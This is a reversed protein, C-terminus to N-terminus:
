SNLLLFLLKCSRSLCSILMSRFKWKWQKREHTHMKKASSVSEKDRASLWSRKRTMYTLDFAAQLGWGVGASCHQIQYEGDNNGSHCKRQLFHWKPRGETLAAMKKGKVSAFMWYLGKSVTPACSPSLDRGIKQGKAAAIGKRPTEDVPRLTTVDRGSM